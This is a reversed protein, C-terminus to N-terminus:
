RGRMMTQSLMDRLQEMEYRIFFLQETHWWEEIGGFLAFWKRWVGLCRRIAESLEGIPAEGAHSRCLQALDACLIQRDRSRQDTSTVAGLIGFGVALDQLSLSLEFPLLYEALRGLTAGVEAGREERKSPDSIRWGDLPAALHLKAITALHWLTRPATGMQATSATLKQTDM